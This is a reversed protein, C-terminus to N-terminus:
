KWSSKQVYEEDACQAASPWQIKAEYVTEGGSLQSFGGSCTLRRACYKV